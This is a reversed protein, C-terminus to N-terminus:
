DKSTILKRILAALEKIYSQIDNINEPVVVETAAGEPMLDPLSEKDTLIIVPKGKAYAYGIELGWNSSQAKNAGIALLLKAREVGAIDDLFIEKRTGIQDSDRQPLFASFGEAILAEELKPNFDKNWEKRWTGTIFIDKM